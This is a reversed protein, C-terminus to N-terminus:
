RSSEPNPLLKISHKAAFAKQATELSDQARKLREDIDKEIALIKVAVEPTLEQSDKVLDLIRTFSQQAINEYLSALERSRTHFTRAESSGPPSIRALRQSCQSATHAATRQLATLESMDPANESGAWREIGDTFNTCAKHVGGTSEVIEENMRIAAKNGGFTSGLGSLFFRGLIVLVIVGGAGIGAGLKGRRAMISPRSPPIRGPFRPAFEPAGQAIPSPVEHTPIEPPGKPEPATDVGLVPVAASDPGLPLQIPQGCGPCKVTKGFHAQSVALQKHCLPCSSIVEM